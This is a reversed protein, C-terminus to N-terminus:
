WSGAWGAVEAEPRVQATGVGGPVARLLAADCVLDDGNKLFADGSDAFGDLDGVNGSRCGDEAVGAVPLSAHLTPEEGRAHSELGEGAGEGAELAEEHGSLPDHGASAEGGAQEGGAHGEFGDALLVVHGEGNM